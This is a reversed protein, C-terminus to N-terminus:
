KAHVKKNSPSGVRAPTKKLKAAVENKLHQKYAAEAQAKTMGGLVAAAIWQNAPSM